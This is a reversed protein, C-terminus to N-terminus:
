HDALVRSRFEDSCVIQKRDHIACVRTGFAWKNQTLHRRRLVVTLSLQLQLVMISPHQLPYNGSIVLSCQRLYRGLHVGVKQVGYGHFSNLSLQM